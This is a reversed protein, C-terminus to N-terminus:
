PVQTQESDDGPLRQLGAKKARLLLGIKQEHDNVKVENLILREKMDDIEKESTIDQTQARRLVLSELKNDPNSLNGM